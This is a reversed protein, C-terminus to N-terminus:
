RPLSKVYMWLGETFGILLIIGIGVVCAWDVWSGSERKTGVGAPEAMSAKMRERVASGYNDDNVQAGKVSVIRGDGDHEKARNGSRRPSTGVM